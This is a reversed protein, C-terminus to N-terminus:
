ETEKEAIGVVFVQDMVEYHVSDRTIEVVKVDVPQRPVLDGLNLIYQGVLAVPADPHYIIGHTNNEVWPPLKPKPPAQGTAQAMAMEAEQQLQDIEALSDMARMRADFMAPMSIGSEMLGDTLSVIQDLLARALGWSQSAIAAQALRELETAVIRAQTWPVLMPDDLNGPSYIYDPKKGLLRQIKESDRLLDTPRNIENLEMDMGPPAFQRSQDLAQDLAQMNVDPNEGDMVQNVAEDSPAMKGAVAQIMEGIQAPATAPLGLALVLLAALFLATTRHRM